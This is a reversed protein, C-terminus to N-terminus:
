IGIKFPFNANEHSLKQHMMGKRHKMEPTTPKDSGDEDM